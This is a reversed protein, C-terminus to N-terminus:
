SPEQLIDLVSCSRSAGDSSSKESECRAKDPHEDGILRPSLDDDGRDSQSDTVGGVAANETIIDITNQRSVAIVNLTLEQKEISPPLALQAKPTIIVVSETIQATQSLSAPSSKKRDLSVGDENRDISLTRARMIHPIAALEVAQEQVDVIHLHPPKMGDSPQEHFTTADISISPRGMEIMKTKITAAINQKKFIEAIHCEIRHRVDRDTSPVREDDLRDARQQVFFSSEFHQGKQTIEADITRIDLDLLEFINSISLVLFPLYHSCSIDIEYGSQADDSLLPNNQNGHKLLESFKLHKPMVANERHIRKVLIEGRLNSSKLVGKLRDKLDRINRASYSDTSSQSLDGGGMRGFIVQSDTNLFDELHGRVLQVGQVELQSILKAFITPAHETMLKVEILWESDPDSKRDRERNREVSREEELDADRDLDGNIPMAMLRGRGPPPPPVPQPLPLATASSSPIHGSRHHGNSMAMRATIDEVLEEDIPVLQVQAETDGVAERIDHLIEEMKDRSLFDSNKGGVGVVFESCDTDGDTEVKAELIDLKLNHLVDVVEFHVGTHHGCEAKITFWKVGEGGNRMGEAREKRRLVYGFAMPAVIVAILLAWVVVAYQGESMLKLDLARAAVLYAFEGRGVMAFGVTWRTDRPCVFGSGLKGAVGATVALVLGKGFASGSFLQETPVTFAVSCAFFLKILWQCLRKMQRRWVYMSRSVSSFSMGAIFAGLLHSGIRDGIVSYSVLVSLMLLLHVEDRPQYNVEDYSPIRHLLKGVLGGFLYKALVVGAALFLFCFLFKSCLLVVFGWATSPSSADDDDSSKLSQLIVLLIISFVDDLFAATVILQGSLSNLENAETLLKLAVGVSTPAMSCGVAFAATCQTSLKTDSGYEFLFVLGFGLVLPLFTGILAVFVASVGVKKIKEFHIHTGSEAILLTVGLTGLLMWQDQHARDILSLPSQPGLLMGAALWGIIPSLSILKCARGFIWILALFAVVRLIHSFEESDSM